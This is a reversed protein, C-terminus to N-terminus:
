RSLLAVKEESFIDIVAAGAHRLRLHDFKGPVTLTNGAQTFNFAMAHGMADISSIEPVPASQNLEIHVDEGERKVVLPYLASHGHFASCRLVIADAGAAQM